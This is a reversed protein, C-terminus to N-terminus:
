PEISDFIRMIHSFMDFLLQQDVAKIKLTKEYLALELHDFVSM